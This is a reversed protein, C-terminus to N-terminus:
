RRTSAKWTVVQVKEVEERTASRRDTGPERAM